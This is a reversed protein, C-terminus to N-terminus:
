RETLLSSMGCDHVSTKVNIEGDRCEMLTSQPVNFRLSAGPGPLKGGVKLLEKAGHGQVMMMDFVTLNNRFHLSFFFITQCFSSQEWCSVFLNKSCCLCHKQYFLLSNKNKTLILIYKHMMSYYDSEKCRQLAWFLLHRSVSTDPGKWVSDPTTAILQLTMCHHQLKKGCGM